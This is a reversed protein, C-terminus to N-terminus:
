CVGQIQLVHVEPPGEGVGVQSSTPTSDTAEKTPIHILPGGMAEKIYFSHWQRSGECPAEPLLGTAQEKALWDAQLQLM